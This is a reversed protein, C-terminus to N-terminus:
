PSQFSSKKDRPADRSFVGKKERERHPESRTIRVTLFSFSCIAVPSAPHRVRRPYNTDPPSIIRRIPDLNLMM